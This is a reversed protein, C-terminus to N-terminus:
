SRSSRRPIRRIKWQGFGAYYSVSYDGLSMTKLRGCRFNEPVQSAPIRFCCGRWADPDAWDVGTCRFFADARAWGGRSVTLRPLRQGRDIWSPWIVTSCGRAREHASRVAALLLSIQQARSKNALVAWLSSAWRVQSSMVDFTSDFDLSGAVSAESGNSVSDADAIRFRAPGSALSTCIVAPLSRWCFHSRNHEELEGLSLQSLKSELGSCM